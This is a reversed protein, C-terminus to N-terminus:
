WKYIAVGQWALDPRCRYLMRANGGLCVSVIAARDRHLYFTNLVLYSLWEMIQHSWTAVTFGRAQEDFLECFSCMEVNSYPSLNVLYVVFVCECDCSHWCIVIPVIIEWLDVSLFILSCLFVSVDRRCHQRVYWTKSWECILLSNCKELVITVKIRNPQCKIQSAEIRKLCNEYSYAGAIFITM